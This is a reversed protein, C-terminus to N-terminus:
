RSSPSTSPMTPPSARPRAGSRTSCCTSGRTSAGTSSSSRSRSRGTGTSTSACRRTTRRTPAGCTSRPSSRSTRTTASRTPSRTTCTHKMSWWTTSMGGVLEGFRADDVGVALARPRLRALAVGVAHQRDRPVRDRRAGGRAEVAAGARRRARHVLVVAAAEAGGDAPEGAVVRRGGACRASPTRRRPPRRSAPRRRRSKPLRQMMSMARDSHFAYMVETADAGDYADIWHTGGPAGGALQHPRVMTAIRVNLRKKAARADASARQDGARRGDAYPRRPRRAPRAPSHAPPSTAFFEADKSSLHLLRAAM